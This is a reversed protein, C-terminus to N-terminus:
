SKEGEEHAYLANKAVLGCLMATRAFENMAQDGGDMECSYWNHNSIWWILVGDTVKGGARMHELPKIHQGKKYATMSDNFDECVVNLPNTNGMDFKRTVEIERILHSPGQIANLLERLAPEGISLMIRKETDIM